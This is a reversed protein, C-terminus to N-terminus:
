ASQRGDTTVRRVDESHMSGIAHVSYTKQIEDDKPNYLIRRNDKTFISCGEYKHGSDVWGDEVLMTLIM